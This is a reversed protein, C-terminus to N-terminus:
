ESCTVGAPFTQSTDSIGGYRIRLTYASDADLGVPRVGHTRGNCTTAISAAMINGACCWHGVGYAHGMEHTAVSFGDYYGNPVPTSWGFYWPCYSNFIIGISSYGYGPNGTAALYQRGDCGAPPNNPGGANGWLVHVNADKWSACAGLSDLTVHHAQGWVRLGDMIVGRNNYVPTGGTFCVNLVGDSIASNVFYGGTFSGATVSATQSFVLALALIFPAIGRRLLHTM